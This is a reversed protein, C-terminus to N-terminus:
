DYLRGKQVKRHYRFLTLEVARASVRLERAYYRLKQLYQDWHNLTFGRGQPNKRVSDIAFLLQWVRIDLVGYRQPDILTLIASAVPVSVGDLGTLLEMRRWEDRTALAARSVRRVRAASNREYRRVARASKWRCMELFEGRSFEGDRKVHRLRAILAATEPDEEAVLESRLLQRLNKYRIRKIAVRSVM